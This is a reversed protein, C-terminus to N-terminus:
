LPPTNGRVRNGGAILNFREVLDARTMELHLNGNAYCRGRFYPTSFLNNERSTQERIADCLEGAWSGGNAPQGDLLHFVQDLARLEDQTGGYRVKFNGRSAYSRQVAYTLIVKQGVGAAESKQNTKYDRLTYGRPRLNEYCELVKEELFQGAQNLTTELMALVNSATLPPLDKGTEIQKDLERARAISMVKRLELRAVLAGWVQKQIAAMTADPNDYDPRGYHRGGGIDLSSLYNDEAFFSKLRDRASVILGFAQRIEKESEAYANCLETISTRRAVAAEDPNFSTASM